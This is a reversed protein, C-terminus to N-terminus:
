YQLACLTITINISNATNSRQRNVISRQGCWQQRSRTYQLQRVALRGRRRPPSILLATTRSCGALGLRRVSLFGNVTGNGSSQMAIQGRRKGCNCCWVQVQATNGNSLGTHDVSTDGTVNKGKGVVRQVKIFFTVLKIKVYIKFQIL